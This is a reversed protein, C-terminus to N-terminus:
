VLETLSSPDGTSGAGLRKTKFEEWEVEREFRKEDEKALTMALLHSSLQSFYCHFILSQYSNSFCLQAM